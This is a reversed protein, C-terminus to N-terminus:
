KTREYIEKKLQEDSILSLRDLRAWCENCYDKDQDVYGCASCLLRGCNDCQKVAPQQDYSCLIKM